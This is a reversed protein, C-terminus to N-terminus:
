KTFRVERSDNSFSAKLGLPKAIQEVAMNLDSHIFSGSFEEIVDSSAKIDYQRELEDLVDKLAYNKFESRGNIWKPDQDNSSLSINNDNYVAEFANLITDDVKGKVKVEVKGEYCEVEFIDGRAKVNFKTGLVRVSGQDTEVTFEEGPTVIFFAEGQLYVRRMSDWSKELYKIASGANLVVQSNDPLNHRISDAYESSINTSSDSLLFWISVLLLFCAVMGFWYIPRIKPRRNETTSKNKNHILAEFKKRKDLAPLDFTGAVVVIKSLKEWDGNEKLIAIEQDTLEGSVFRAYLTEENLM